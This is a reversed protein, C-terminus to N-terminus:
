QEARARFAVRGNEAAVEFSVKQCNNARKFDDTQRTLKQRFDALSLADVSEGCETKASILAQYLKEISASEEAVNSCVIKFSQRENKAADRRAPAAFDRGEERGKITRRWLEKFSNFRAVLSNYHYRQAFTLSREDALRKIVSEVRNKTDFPARKAGGGFFVDYEIKLRRIDEELRVLRADISVTEDGSFNRRAQEAQRAFKNIQAMIKHSIPHPTKQTLTLASNFDLPM